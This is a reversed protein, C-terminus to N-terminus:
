RSGPRSDQWVKLGPIKTSKDDNGAIAVAGQVKAIAVKQVAIRVAEKVKPDNAVLESMYSEANLMFEFLSVVECKWFKTMGSTSGHSGHVKRVTTDVVPANAAADMVADAEADHESAAQDADQATEQAAAAEETKGAAELAAAKKRAKRAKEESEKAAKEAKQALELAAADAKEKEKRAIEALRADEEDGWKKMKEDISEVAAKMPGMIKKFEANIWDVYQRPKKTQELRSEDLGRLDNTIIKRLDGCLAFSDHNTVVAREAQGILDTMRDRSNSLQSGELSVMEQEIITQLNAEM